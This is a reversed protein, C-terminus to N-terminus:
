STCCLSVYEHVGATIFAMFVICFLNLSVVNMNKPSKWACDVDRVWCVIPVSGIVVGFCRTMYWRRFMCGGYTDIM